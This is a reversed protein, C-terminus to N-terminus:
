NVSYRFYEASQAYVLACILYKMELQMQACIDKMFNAFSLLQFRGQEHSTHKDLCRRWEDDTPLAEREGYRM